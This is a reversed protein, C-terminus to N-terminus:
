MLFRDLSRDRRALQRVVDHEGIIRVRHALVLDLVDLDNARHDASRGRILRLRQGGVRDAKKTNICLRKTSQPAGRGPIHKGGRLRCTFSAYPVRQLRPRVRTRQCQWRPELSLHASCCISRVFRPQYRQLRAKPEHRCLPRGEAARIVPVRSGSSQGRPQSRMPERGGFGNKRRTAVRNVNASQCM